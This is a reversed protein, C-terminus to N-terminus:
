RTQTSSRRRLIAYGALAIVAAALVGFGVMESANVHLHRGGDDFAFLISSLAPLLNAIM